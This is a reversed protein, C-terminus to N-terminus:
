ESSLDLYHWGLLDGFLGNFNAIHSCRSRKIVWRKIWEVFLQQYKNCTSETGTIQSLMPSVDSLLILADKEQALKTTRPSSSV